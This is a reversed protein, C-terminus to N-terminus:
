AAKRPQRHAGDPEDKILEGDPVETELWGAGWLSKPRDHWRIPRCLPIVKGPRGDLDARERRLGLVIGRLAGATPFYRSKPDQRYLQIARAVESVQFEELDSVLVDIM